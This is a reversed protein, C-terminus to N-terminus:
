NVYCVKKMLRRGSVDMVKAFVLQATQLANNPEFVKSEVPDGSVSRTLASLARAVLGTSNQASLLGLLCRFLDKRQQTSLNHYTFLMLYDAVVADPYSLVTWLHYISTNKRLGRIYQRFHPSGRVCAALLGAAATLDAESRDTVVGRGNATAATKVAPPSPHDLLYNVLRPALAAYSSAPLCLPVHQLMNTLLQVATHDIGQLPSEAAAAAASRDPSSSGGSTAAHKSGGRLVRQLLAEQLSIDPKARRAQTQVTHLARDLLQQVAPDDTLHALAQLAAEQLKHLASDNLSLLQQCLVALCHVCSYLVGGSISATGASSSLLSASLTWGARLDRLRGARATLSVAWRSRSTEDRTDAHGFLVPHAFSYADIFAQLADTASETM